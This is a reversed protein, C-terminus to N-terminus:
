PAPLIHLKIAVLVTIIAMIVVFTLSANYGKRREIQYGMFGLLVLWAAFLAMEM